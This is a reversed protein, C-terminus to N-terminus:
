MAAMVEAYKMARLVAQTTDESKAEHIHIEYRPGMLEATKRANDVREGGRFHLLEPGREGVLALGPSASRTGTAYGKIKSVKTTTTTKGNVTRETTTTTTGKAPDTVTTTVTVVKRGKSDTSYSTTVRTTKKAPAKGKVAQSEGTLWTLLSALASAVPTSSNVKLKKKLTKVITDALGEIQKKLKNDKATLGDVLSQAAAKGAKYYSGAVSKGLSDSASGIAAYTKNFDAVQAETANLLEKAMAGGQEPGAQAIEAIIEKSFGRKVLQSVNSQFTKITALREKLGSLASSVSVGDSNFIDTLSRLGKAKDSISSAMEAEDKKVQALKANAEKLKPALDARQQVLKQLQKNQTDLWKNLSNATKSGIQGSTFAQTIIQYLKKVASNLSSVGKLADAAIGTTRTSSGTGSAYGRLAKGGALMSDQHNLVTEGGKFNVLEPGEEGVWAWGREAGDTGTAYGKVGSLAKRWGSGYRHVAYNLGAYISALPDTIGRSRYPGAYAAFTQPITQMLGQSPYGAKANSDWLNIANPNGGSEVKIRHLVLNLDSAPLGLQSLVMKVQPTWRTVASGAGPTSLQGDVLGSVDPKKATLNEGSFDFLGELNPLSEKATAYVDSVVQSAYDMPTTWVERLSKVMDTVGNYEAKTLDWLGSVTDKVTGIPDTILAKGGNWLSKISDWAGGFLNEVFSKLTKVSFMDDLYAGGRQLVNGQGKWVDDWFYEGSIPSLAGGLIGVLQGVGSPFRKLFKWSDVTMFDFIGKFKTALDSGVFHSADTGTGVVGKQVDGGLARSSSAMKMTAFAGLADTGINFSKAANILSDLGLEGIIGGKAFQMAQRIGNVGQTRAIVNMENVYGPGVAATWEPRMVSEGGSLELVGATPSTFTHVDTGPTYGPLVGGLAKKSKKSSGSSGSGGPAKKSIDNLKDNLDEAKDATDKLKDGLKKVQETVDSTKMSNLQGIRGILSSKGPGVKNTTADTEDKVNSVEGRLASLALANLRNVQKISGRAASTLDDSEKKAGKFEGDLGDLKRGNLNSVASGARQVASKFSEDKSTVQEFEEQLAQLKLGRLNSVANEARRVADRAQDAKAKVSSDSGAFEEALQRLNESKLDRIRAKLESIEQDLEQVNRQAQDTSVQIEEVQSNRGRVRDVLRRGASRTDGDNYAGRQARYAARGDGGMSAAQLGRAAQGAVRVGGRGAKFAGKALGALPSGMKLLAGFLKIVGGLVIAGAGLLAAWKGAEIVMDTLGPNDKLVQVTRKVWDAFITLNEFLEAILKGSPGKFDKGIETVTDLLGGKGMLAEGAGTYEYAGDKGTPSVFLEALGFKSSEWMNALRATITASGQVVGAAKDTGTGAKKGQDMIADVIAEGPVGGTTKADQMWKMLQSSAKNVKPANWSVGREEMLEKRDALEKDTFERDKFGLLRALTQVDLGASEALTRVNRLGARDSEQINGVAVMARKVMEPDTIGAAAALDGISMVLNTARQTAKGSTMGHSMGSRAYQAGYTFMEQVSYPTQTGYDRLTQIQKAADKNSVGMGHLATQARIMSDAATIGMASMAAGATLLPTTVNRQISRGFEAMSTGFANVTSGASYMARTWSKEVKSANAELTRVMANNQRITERASDKAAQAQALAAQAATASAARQTQMEALLQAKRTNHASTYAAQATRAAKAQEAAELQAQRIVLASLSKVQAERARTQKLHEAAVKRQEIIELASWQKAENIRTLYLTTGAAKMAEVSKLYSAATEKGYKVELNRANLAIRERAREAKEKAATRAKEAGAFAETVAAIARMYAATETQNYEARKAAAAQELKVRKAAEEGYRKTLYVQIKEQLKATQQALKTQDGSFAAIEKEALALQAKLQAQNMEPTILIYANGVRISGKAPM